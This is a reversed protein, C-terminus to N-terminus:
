VGLPGGSPLISQRERMALRARDFVAQVGQEIEPWTAALSAGRAILVCDFGVPLTGYRERVAERLRRRVRNRDVARKSVRKAVTFGIRTYELGNPAAYLAVVPHAWGHPRIAQERVARFDAARRLRWARKM